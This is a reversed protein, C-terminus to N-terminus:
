LARQTTVKSSVNGKQVELLHISRNDANLVRFLLHDIHVSEDRKPLRGFEKLVFGGITNYQEEDFQTKFYSNFEDVPTRAKVVFNQNDGKKILHDDDELDHEDDIEGVIQELVDEITILGAIGGYENVVIAMHNKTTRFDKLLSDLRKSEPVFIAPRLIDRINVRGLKDNVALPLLDKALLIGLVEDPNESFVPFSSHASKIIDLLFKKAPTAEKIFIMQSRPVMVEKVQMESVVMAGEIIGLSETDLLQRDEADRLIKRLDERSRPENGGFAQSIREAWSRPLNTSPPEEKM